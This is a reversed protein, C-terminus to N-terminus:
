QRAKKLSQKLRDLEYPIGEYEFYARTLKNMDALRIGHKWIGKIIFEFVYLLPYGGFPDDPNRRKADQRSSEARDLIAMGDAKKKPEDAYTDEIYQRIGAFSHPYKEIVASSSGGGGYDASYRLFAATEPFIKLWREYLWPDQM